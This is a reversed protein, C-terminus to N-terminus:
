RAASRERLGCDQEGRAKLTLDLSKTRNQVGLEITEVIHWTEVNSKLDEVPDPKALLNWPAQTLYVHTTCTLGNM